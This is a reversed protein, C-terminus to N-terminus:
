SLGPRGAGSVPRIIDAGTLYAFSARLSDFPDGDCTDQEVMYWEVGGTRAQSVISAWDMNGNGLETIKCGNDETAALDKLHIVEVLEANERLFKVCCFGAHHLWYTDLTLKFGNEGGLGDLILQMGSIQRGDVSHKVFEFSHNHYAFHFGNKGLESVIPKYDAIFDAYGAAGRNRYQAPMSGLGVIKCNFQEHERMVQKLCSTLRDPPTHTLIVPLGTDRSIDRLEAASIEGLGSVQVCDYGIAAVKEFATRIQAPTRAQERITYLQAGFGKIM